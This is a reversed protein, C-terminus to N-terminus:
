LYCRGARRLRKKAMLDHIIVEVTIKPGVHAANNEMACSIYCMKVHRVGTIWRM